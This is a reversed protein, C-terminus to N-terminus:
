DMSWVKFIVTHFYLICPFISMSLHLFRVMIFIRIKELSVKSKLTIGVLIGIFNPRQLIQEIQM